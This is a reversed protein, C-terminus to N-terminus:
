PKLNLVYPIFHLTELLLWVGSAQPRGGPSTGGASYLYDIGAVV